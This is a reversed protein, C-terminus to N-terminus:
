SEVDRWIDDYREDATWGEEDRLEDKLDRIYSELDGIVQQLREVRQRPSIQRKLRYEKSLYGREGQDSTVNSEDYGFFIDNLKQRLELDKKYESNEKVIRKVIRTLESETLRIRRM